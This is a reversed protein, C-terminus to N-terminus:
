HANRTIYTVLAILSFVFVAAFALGVLIVHLPKITATDREMHRGKRIGLFSWFVADAVQLLSAAKPEVSTPEVPSSDPPVAPPRASDSM